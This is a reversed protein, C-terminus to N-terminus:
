RSTDIHGQKQEEQTGLPPRQHEAMHQAPHSTRHLRHREREPEEKWVGCLHVVGHGGGRQELLHAVRVGVGIQALDGVGILLLRGALLEVLVSGELSDTLAAM